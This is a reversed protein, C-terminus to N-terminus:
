STHRSSHSTHRPLHSTHMSAPSGHSTHVSLHSRIAHPIRSSSRWINGHPHSTRSTRRTWVTHHSPHSHVDLMTTRITRWHSTLSRLLALEPMRRLLSEMLLSSKTLSRLLALEPMRRLLSEM